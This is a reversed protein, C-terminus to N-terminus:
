STSKARPSVHLQRVSADEVWRAVTAVDFETAPAIEAHPVGAAHAAVIAEQLRDTANLFHRFAARVGDLRPDAVRGNLQDGAKLAAELRMRNGWSANRPDAWQVGDHALLEWRGYVQTPRGRDDTLPRRGFHCQFAFAPDRTTALQLTALALADRDDAAFIRQDVIAGDPRVFATLRQTIPQEHHGPM